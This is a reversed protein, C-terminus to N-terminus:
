RDALRQPSPRRSMGRRIANRVRSRTSKHDDVGEEELRRAAARGLDEPAVMPIKLDAPLMTTLTGNRAEELQADWNSFYYGARQVVAPISQAALAQEFDYLVNLDGLREGPQAGMTSAAVVKELGSGDLARVISRVTAHEERDTDTSVDAPPNLLFARKGTKFIERLADSDHVDVIATRAGRATWEPAKAPDRLVATVPKGAEILAKAAASGIHGSAGLIIIM